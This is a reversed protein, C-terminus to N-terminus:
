TSPADPAVALSIPLVLRGLPPLLPCRAPYHRCVRAPWECPSLKTHSNEKVGGDQVLQFSLLRCFGAQDSRASDGAVSRCVVGTVLDAM